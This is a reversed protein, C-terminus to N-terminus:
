KGVTAMYPSDEHKEQNNIIFGSILESQNFHNKGGNSYHEIHLTGDMYRIKKVIVETNFPFALLSFTSLVDLWFFFNWTYDYKSLM